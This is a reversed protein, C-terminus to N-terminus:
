AIPEASWSSESTKKSIAARRSHVEQHEGKLGLIVPAKPGESREPFMEQQEGKLALLVPAKPGELGELFRTRHEIESRKEKNQVLVGGAVSWQHQLASIIELLSPNLEATPMLHLALM